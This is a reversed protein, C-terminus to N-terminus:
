SSSSYTLLLNVSHISPSFSYLLFYICSLFSCTFSFLFFYFFLLFHCVLCFFTFLLHLCYFLFRSKIDDRHDNADPLNVVRVLFNTQNKFSISVVHQLYLFIYVNTPIYALQTIYNLFLDVPRNSM